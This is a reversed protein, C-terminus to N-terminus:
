LGDPLFYPIDSCYFGSEPSRFDMHIKSNVETLMLMCNYKEAATCVGTRKYSLEIEM